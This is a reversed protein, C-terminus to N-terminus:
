GFVILVGDEEFRKMFRYFKELRRVDVKLILEEFYDEEIVGKYKKFCNFWLKLWVIEVFYM